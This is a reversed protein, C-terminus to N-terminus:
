PRWAAIEGRRCLTHAETRAHAAGVSASVIRGFQRRSFMSHLM